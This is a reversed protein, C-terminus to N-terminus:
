FLSFMNISHIAHTIFHSQIHPVFYALKDVM